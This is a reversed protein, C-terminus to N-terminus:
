RIISVAISGNGVILLEGSKILHYDYLILCSLPGKQPAYCFGRPGTIPGNHVPTSLACRSDAHLLCHLHAVNGHTRVRHVALSDKSIPSDWCAIIIQALSINKYKKSPVLCAFKKDGFIAKFLTDTHKVM